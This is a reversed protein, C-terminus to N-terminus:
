VILASLIDIRTQRPIINDTQRSAALFYRAAERDVRAKQKALPDSMEKAVKVLEKEFQRLLAGTEEPDLEDLKDAQVSAQDLAGIVSYYDVPKRFRSRSLGPMAELVWSNLLLLRNRLEEGPQFDERYNAYWVDVSAKKDQAGESLLIALEASFEVNRMRQFQNPTFVKQQRWFDWSGVEEVFEAFTGEEHAHRLEQSSLRVTYRNARAFIDKIQKESYGSLEEVVFDYDLIRQQDDSSLDSWRDRYWTEDESETLRLRNDMFLFVARLRQQGDIVEYTPRGSQTSSTRRFFLPSIPLDNLITDLLYAKAARPWVSNRQFEPALNLQKDVYLQRLLGVDKTTTRRKPM